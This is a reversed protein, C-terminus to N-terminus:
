MIALLMAENLFLCMNRLLCSLTKVESYVADVYTHALFVFHYVYVGETM